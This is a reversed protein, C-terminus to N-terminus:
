GAAARDMRRIANWIQSGFYPSTRYGGALSGTSTVGNLLWGNDGSDRFWGGGSSGRAMDCRVSFSVPGSLRYGSFRFPSPWTYSSCGRLQRAQNAGGPYGRIEYKARRSYNVMYGASGSSESFTQGQQNRSFEVIGFDYRPNTRYYWQNPVWTSIGRFTGYPRKGDRYAPVFTLKRSWTRGDALCHGATVALRGTPTNIATASCSYVGRGSRFTLRGSVPVIEPVSNPDSLSARAGAPSVPAVIRPSAAAPWGRSSAAGDPASLVRVRPLPMPAAERSEKATLPSREPGEMQKVVAGAPGAAILALLFLGVLASTAKFLPGKREEKVPM